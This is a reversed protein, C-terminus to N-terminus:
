SSYVPPPLHIADSLPHCSRGSSNKIPAFEKPPSGSRGELDSSNKGDTSRQRLDAGRRGESVTTASRARAARLMGVSCAM